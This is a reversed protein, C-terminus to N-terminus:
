LIDFLALELSACLQMTNTSTLPANALLRAASSHELSAVTSRL